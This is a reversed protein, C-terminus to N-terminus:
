AAILRKFEATMQLVQDLRQSIQILTNHELLTQLLKRTADIDADGPSSPQPVRVAIRVLQDQDDYHCWVGIPFVELRTDGSEPMIQATVFVEDDSHQIDIVPKM